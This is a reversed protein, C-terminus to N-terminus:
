AALQTALRTQLYKAEFQRENESLASIRKKESDIRPQHNKFLKKIADRSDVSDPFIENRMAYRKEGELSLCAALSVRLGTKLDLGELNKLRAYEARKRKHREKYREPNKAYAARGSEQRRKRYSADKQYRERVRENVKVANERRHQAARATVEKQHANLYKELIVKAKQPNAKRWRIGDRNHRKSWETAYLPPNGWKQWYTQATLGHRVLHTKDIYQRRTSCERCVVYATIGRSRELRPDMRYLKLQAGSVPGLKKRRINRSRTMGIKTEGM